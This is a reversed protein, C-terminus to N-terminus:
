FSFVQGFLPKRTSADTTKQLLRQFRKGMCWYWTSYNKGQLLLSFIDVLSPVVNLLDKCLIQCPQFNQWPSWGMFDTGIFGFFLCLLATIQFKTRLLTKNILIPFANRWGCHPDRSFQSRRQVKSPWAFTFRTLLFLFIVM